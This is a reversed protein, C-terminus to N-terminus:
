SVEDCIVEMNRNFTTPAPYLDYDIEAMRRNKYAKFDYECFDARNSMRWVDAGVYTKGSIFIIATEMKGTNKNKALLKEAKRFCSTKSHRRASYRRATKIGYEEEYQNIYSMKQRWNQPKTHQKKM